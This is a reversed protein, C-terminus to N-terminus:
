SEPVRQAVGPRYRSQKVKIMLIFVSPKRLIIRRFVIIRAIIISCSSVIKEQV